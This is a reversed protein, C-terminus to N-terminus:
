LASDSDTLHADCLSIIKSIEVSFFDEYIWKAELGESATEPLYRKFSRTQWVDPNTFTNLKTDYNITVGDSYFKVPEDEYDKVFIIM